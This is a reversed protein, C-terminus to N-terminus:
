AHWAELTIGNSMVGRPRWGRDWALNRTLERLGIEHAGRVLGIGTDLLSAADKPSMGEFALLVVVCRPFIDIALLARELQAKTTNGDLAWNRTPLGAKEAQATGTCRASETLEHRVASLAKAIVLRRSRAVIRESLFSIEGRTSDIVEIALDASQECRGTLLFALWYLDAAHKGAQESVVPEAVRDLDDNEDRSTIAGAGFGGGNSFLPVSIQSIVGVGHFFWQHWFM